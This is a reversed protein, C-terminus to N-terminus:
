GFSCLQLRWPASYGVSAIEQWTQWVKMTYAKSVVSSGEEGALAAAGIRWKEMPIIVHFM